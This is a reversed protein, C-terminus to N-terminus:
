EEGKEYHHTNTITGHKLLTKVDIEVEYVTEFINEEDVFLVRLGLEKKLQNLQRLNPIYSISEVEVVDKGEVTMLGVTLVKLKLKKKKHMKDSREIQYKYHYCIINLFDLLINDLDLLFHIYCFM